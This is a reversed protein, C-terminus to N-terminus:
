VRGYIDELREIDNEDLIDGQQIELVKLQSDSENQLSHVEEVAIDISEGAKLIHKENGKLVVAEGELIIWHESRHHHLQVSLKSAPNVVICKTLFGNGNELVTYCGWPRYVTQHIEKTKANEGNIKAYIDKSGQSDDLDSVLVADETVIVAKKNLGITATLKSPSYILSEKSGIDINEGIIVNQKKDKKMIKYIGNWSGIDKWGSIPLTVLKKTKEIIAYDISIKDTKSYEELSIAPISAKIDSNMIPEYIDPAYKKFEELITEISFMYNGSNLFVKGKLEEADKTNPKELFKTAKLADPEIEQIKSNKRAKIYGFNLDIKDKENIETGFSVIYGEKALKVGKLIIESFDDRNTILHDSPTVFIIADTGLTTKLLDKIYKVCLFTAPATNQSIPEALMKYEISRGFKEQLKKLQEKIQSAYKTNTVTIINKDDIFNTLNLFTKQFLTYDDNFKFMQKPYMERSVPWLRIGSGGALIISFLKTM